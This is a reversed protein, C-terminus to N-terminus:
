KVDKKSDVRSTKTIGLRWLLLAVAIVAALGFLAEPVAYNSTTGASAGTSTAQSITSTTGCSVVPNGTFSGGSEYIAGACSNSWSGSNTIAGSNYFDRDNTVVGNPENDLTGDNIFVASPDVAITGANVIHGYNSIYGPIDLTGNNEFTGSNNLAGNNQITGSNAFVAVKSIALGAGSDITLNAGPGVDGKAGVTCVGTSNSWSGGLDACQSTSQGLADASNSLTYSSGQAQARADHLPSASVLAMVLVAALVPATKISVVM